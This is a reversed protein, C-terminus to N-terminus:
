RLDGSSEAGTDPVTAATTAAAGPALDAADQGDPRHGSPHAEAFRRRRARGVHRIWWSLVVLLLAGTLLPGLGRLANVGASLTVPEGLPVAGAPTVVEITVPFRGNSRAEVPVLVETYV